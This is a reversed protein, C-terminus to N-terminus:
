FEMGFLVYEMNFGIHKYFRRALRNARETGVEIEDMGCERAAAIGAKILQAGIGRGRESGSVVLENILATGGAHLFTKYFVLSILGVVRSHEVAVYNRYVDPFRVMLEYMKHVSRDEVPGGANTVEGLQGLLSAVADLDGSRLERVEIM